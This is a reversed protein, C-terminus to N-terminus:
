MPSAIAMRRGDNESPQDFLKSCTVSKKILIKKILVHPQFIGLMQYCQFIMGLSLFLTSSKSQFQVFDHLYNTEWSINTLAVESTTNFM